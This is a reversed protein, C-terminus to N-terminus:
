LQDQWQALWALAPDEPTHDYQVDIQIKDVYVKAQCEELVQALKEPGQCFTDYSSDGIACIAYKTDSLDPKQISIEDFFPVINDPLDGAGHTSSVILWLSKPDLDALKPTMHVINEHGLGSLVTSFEDAVYEANGLTTGVLIDIKSM